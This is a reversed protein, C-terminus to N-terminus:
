NSGSRGKAADLEVPQLPQGAALERRGVRREDPAVHRDRHHAFDAVAGRGDKAVGAIDGRDLHGLLLDGVADDVEAHQHRMQRLHAHAAVGAAGLPDDGAIEVLEGPLRHEVAVFGLAIQQEGAVQGAVDDAQRQPRGPGHRAIDDAVDGDLARGSIGVEVHLVAARLREAAPAPQKAACNNPRVPSPSRVM